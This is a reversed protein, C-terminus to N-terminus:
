LVCYWSRVIEVPVFGQKEYLHVAPSNTSAVEVNVMPGSLAHCLAKLVTKGQGPVVSAIAAIEEGDAIGIGLLQENKHVFYANKEKVLKKCAFTTLVAANDVGSMRENYIIRWQEYTEDTVPMLCAATDEIRELPCSMRVIDTYHPFAEANEDGCVYVREAGAAKCFCVCEDLLESFQISDRIHIYANGTCPIQNLVLGATGYATEFMPIDRM